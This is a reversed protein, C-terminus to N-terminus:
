TPRKLSVTARLGGGPRNELALRGGHASALASVIALGLGAGGGTRGRSPELREFPATMRDLDAAPIGPGDDDLTLRVTRDDAALSLRATKGYRLANDTLNALIRQLALPEIAARLNAPPEDLSVADGLERRLTVFRRAEAVVDTAADPDVSASDTAAFLLTDDILAGMEDIDRGARARQDGDAIFESRLRLRTLYTRLDHAIAALLRTRDAVLGAIRAKMHNFARALDQVEKPGTAPIDPANLDDALSRAHGALRAIPRATRRVALALGVLVIVGAAGMVALGRALFTDFVAARAPEFLVYQGDSLSVYLRSPEWVRQGGFLRSLLGPRRLEVDIDRHAFVADYDALFREIGQTLLGGRDRAPPAAVISVTLSRSNVANLIRDRDAAAAPDLIDVIAAAQTAVPLKYLDSREDGMPAYLIAAMALNFLVVAALLVGALRVFLSGALAGM